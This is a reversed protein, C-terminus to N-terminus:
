DVPHRVSYTAPMPFGFHPETAGNTRVYDYSVIVEPRSIAADPDKLLANLKKQWRTGMDAQPSVEPPFQHGPKLAEIMAKTYGVDVIKAGKEVQLHAIGHLLLGLEEARLSV